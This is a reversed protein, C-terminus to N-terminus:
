AANGSNGTELLRELAARPILIRKGFRISPLEGREVARYTSGRSMGIKKATEEVSLTARISVNTEM